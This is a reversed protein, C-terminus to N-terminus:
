MTIFINSGMFIIFFIFTIITLKSGRNIADIREATVGEIVSTLTANFNQQGEELSLYYETIAASSAGMAAMDGTKVANKLDELTQTFGTVVVSYEQFATTLVESEAMAVIAEMETLLTLIEANNAECNTIIDPIKSQNTVLFFQNMFLKAKQVDVALSTNKGELNVYVDSMAVFAEKSHSSSVNQAVNNTLFVILLMMLMAIIKVGVHKKM